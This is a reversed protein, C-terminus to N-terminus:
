VAPSAPFHNGGLSPSDAIFATRLAGLTSGFCARLARHLSSKSAFGSQEVLDEVPIAPNRRLLEGARNARSAQIEHAVTTGTDSFARFLTRRSVGLRAAIETAGLGPEDSQVAILRKALVLLDQPEVTRIAAETMSRAVMRTMEWLLALERSDAFQLTNVLTYLYAYSTRVVPSSFSLEGVNGPNLRVLPDSSADFSFLLMEVPRFFEFALPDRSPFVVSIGDVENAHVSPSDGRIHLVGSTVFLFLTSHAFRSSTRDWGIVCNKAFMRSVGFSGFRVLALQLDDLKGREIAMGTGELLRTLQRNRLFSPQSDTIFDHVEREELERLGLAGSRSM